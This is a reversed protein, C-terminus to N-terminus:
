KEELLEPNLWKNGIIESDIAQCSSFSFPIGEEARMKELFNKHHSITYFGTGQETPSRYEGFLVERKGPMLIDGVGIETGYKDQYNTMLLVVLNKHQQEVNPNFSMPGHSMLRGAQTLLFWNETGAIERHVIGDIEFECYVKYRM